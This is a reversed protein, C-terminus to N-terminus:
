KVRRNDALLNLDDRAGEIKSQLDPDDSGTQLLRCAMEYAVPSLDAPRHAGESLIAHLRANIPLRTQSLGLNNEAEAIIFAVRRAVDVHPALSTPSIPVTM